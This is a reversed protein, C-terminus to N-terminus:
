DKYVDWRFDIDTVELEWAENKKVIIRTNRHRVRRKNEVWEIPMCDYDWMKGAKIEDVFFMLQERRKRDQKKIFKEWSKSM